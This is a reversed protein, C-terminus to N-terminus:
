CSTYTYKNVRNEILVSVAPAIDGLGVGCGVM